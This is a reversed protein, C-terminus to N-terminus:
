NVTIQTPGKAEIEPIGKYLKVKGTVCINAGRYAAEPPTPFNSRNNGWIVITLRSSNTAGGGINLFTPQGNSTSAYKTSVVPGCLCVSVGVHESASTWDLCNPPTNGAPQTNTPPRPAAFFGTSVGEVLGAFIWVDPALRYWEGDTSKGDSVIIDGVKKGGVIPYDTGPGARLNAPQMVKLSISPRATPKPTNTPPSINPRTPVSATQTAFIEASVNTEIARLDPRSQGGCASITLSILLGIILIVKRRAM